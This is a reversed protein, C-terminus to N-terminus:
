VPSRGLRRGLEPGVRGGLAAGCGAVSFPRVPARANEDWFCNQERSHCRSSSDKGLPNQPERRGTLPSSRPTGLGGWGQSALPPGSKISKCPWLLRRKGFPSEINPASYNQIKFHASTMARLATLNETPPTSWGRVTHDGREKGLTCRRIRGLWCYLQGVVQSSIRSAGPPSGKTSEPIQSLITNEVGKSIVSLLRVWHWPSLKWEMQEM